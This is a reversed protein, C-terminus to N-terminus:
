QNGNNLVDEIDLTGALIAKADARTLKVAGETIGDILHELSRIFGNKQELYYDDDVPPRGTRLAILFASSQDSEGPHTTNREDVLEIALPETLRRLARLFLTFYLKSGTGIRVVISSEPLHSSVFACWKETISAAQFPSSCTVGYIKKKDAVFVMGFRIGPDVGITVEYPETIDFLKLLLETATIDANFSSDILVLHDPGIHNLRPVVDITCIFVKALVLDAEDPSLVLFHVKLRKLLRVIYYLAKPDETIVGVDSITM